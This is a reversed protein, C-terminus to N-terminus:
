HTALQQLILRLGAHPYYKITATDLHYFAVTARETTLLPALQATAVALASDSVAELRIRDGRYLYYGGLYTSKSVEYRDPTLAVFRSGDSLDDRSLNNILKIMRGERFLVGWRFLPLALDLPLPYARDVLYAEAKALNLISNPEEWDTLDGMNYYMLMGRDVPPVGTRDPYRYQHLRITASLSVTDPLQQRIVRLLQFYRDRTGLTWDCDIQVERRASTPPWRALIRDAMRQGLLPLDKEGIRELTRNTVFVAPVIELDALLQTTDLLLDALPVAEKRQEDWDVDFVKVYLRRAGLAQLYEREMGTLALKTQWHYFAPTLEPPERRCATLGIWLCAMIGVGVNLMRCEINLMRYEINDLNRLNSDKVLFNTSVM